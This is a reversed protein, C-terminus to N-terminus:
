VRTQVDFTFAVFGSASTVATDVEFTVTVVGTVPDTFAPNIASGVTTYAAGSTLQFTQELYPTGDVSVRGTFTVVTGPTATTISPTTASWRLNSLIANYVHTPYQATGSEPETPASSPFMGTWAYLQYATNTTLGGAPLSAGFQVPGGSVIAPPVPPVNAADGQVGQAGAAGQAGLFGQAGQAGQVGQVGQVGPPGQTGATSM